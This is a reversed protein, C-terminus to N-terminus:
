NGGRYCVKLGVELKSMLQEFCEGDNINLGECDVDDDRCDDDNM